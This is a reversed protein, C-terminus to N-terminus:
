GQQIKKILIRAYTSKGNVNACHSHKKRVEENVGFYDFIMYRNILDLIQFQKPNYKYLFTIPVGMVRDYDIPIEDVRSVEIADYHDYKPYASPNDYYSKTLILPKREYLYPVNTFWSIAPVKGYKRNGEIRDWKEYSMPM